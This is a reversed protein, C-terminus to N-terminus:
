PLPESRSDEASAAVPSCDQRSCASETYLPHAQTPGSEQAAQKALSEYKAEAVKRHLRKVKELAMTETVGKVVACAGSVALAAMMYVNALSQEDKSLQEYDRNGLVQNAHDTFFAAMKGYTEDIKIMMDFTKALYEDIERVCKAPGGNMSAVDNRGVVAPM